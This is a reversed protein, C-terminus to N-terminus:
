SATIRIITVRDRWRVMESRKEHSIMTILQTGIVACAIYIGLDIDHAWQDAPLWNESNTKKKAQGRNM